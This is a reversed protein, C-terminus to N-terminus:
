SVRGGNSHQLVVIKWETDISHVHGQKSQLNEQFSKSIKSPNKSINQKTMKYVHNGPGTSNHKSTKTINIPIQLLLPIWQYFAQFCFDSINKPTKIFTMNSKTNRKTM